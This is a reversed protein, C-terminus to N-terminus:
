KEDYSLEITDTDPRAQCCLIFGAEIEWPELAINHMMHAKGATIKVRCTACIGARCSYPLSLGAREAAELMSGDSETMDFSRRRGDSTVGIHALVPQAPKEKTEIRALPTTGTVFREVRVVAGANLAKLAQSLEDVMAGPGCILYEDALRVDEIQRALSELKAADIRGNFLEADQRERSMVFHVAFRELNRDKLALIEDVLMSHSMSRNGYVLTFRSRPEHTLIDTAISLIPTIGSGAAFAVYSRQRAADRPTCFRGLPKSVELVDGRKLLRNLDHSMRGQGRVGLKLVNAGPPSAISYTRSEEKGELTRRVSVYQGAKFAFSERLAEPVELTIVAADAATPRVSSVTLPHFKM